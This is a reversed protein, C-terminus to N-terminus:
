RSRKNVRRNENKEKKLQEKRKEKWFEERGLKTDLFIKKLQNEFYKRMHENDIVIRGEENEYYFVPITIATKPKKEM